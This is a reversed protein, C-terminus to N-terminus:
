TVYMPYEEVNRICTMGYLSVGLLSHSGDSSSRSVDSSPFLKKKEKIGIFPRPPHIFVSVIM